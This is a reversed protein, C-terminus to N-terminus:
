VGVVARPIWVYVVRSGVLSPAPYVSDALPGRSRAHPSNHGGSDAAQAGSSQIERPVGSVGADWLDAHGHTSHHLVNEPGDRGGRHGRRRLVKTFFGHVSFYRSRGDPERPRVRGAGAQPARGRSEGGRAVDAHDVAFDVLYVRGRAPSDALQAAAGYISGGPFVVACIGSVGDGVDAAGTGSFLVPGPAIRSGRIRSDGDNRGIEQHM